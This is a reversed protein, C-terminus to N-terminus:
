SSWWRWRCGRTAADLAVGVGTVGGGIVLVDVPDARETLVALDARRRAANLVTM